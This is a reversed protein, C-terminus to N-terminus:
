WEGPVRLFGLPRDVLLDLGRQLPVETGDDLKEDILAQVRVVRQRVDDHLRLHALILRELEELGLEFGDLALEHLEAAVRQGSLVEVDIMM